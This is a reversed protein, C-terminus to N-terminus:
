QPSRRLSRRTLLEQEDVSLTDGSEIMPHGTYQACPALLMNVRSRSRSVAICLRDGAIQPALVELRNAARM